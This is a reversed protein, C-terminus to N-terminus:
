IDPKRCRTRRKKRQKEDPDMGQFLKIRAYIEEEAQIRGALNALRLATFIADWAKTPINCSDIRAMLGPVADRILELDKQNNSNM